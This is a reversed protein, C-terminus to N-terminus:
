CVPHYMYQLGVSRRLVEIQDLALEAESIIVESTLCVAVHQIPMLLFNLRLIVIGHMTGLDGLICYNMFSDGSYIHPNKEKTLHCVQIDWYETKFMQCRYLGVSVYEEEGKEEETM